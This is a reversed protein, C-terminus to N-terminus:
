ETDNSLHAEFKTKVQQPLQKFELEDCWSTKCDIFRLVETVNHTQDYSVKYADGNHLTVFTKIM